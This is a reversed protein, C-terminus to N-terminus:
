RVTDASALQGIWIDVLKLEEVPPDPPMETFGVASLVARVALAVRMDHFCQWDAESDWVGIHRLGGDSHFVLHAILGIPQDDGIRAKVQRYMHEDAPVDYRLAYTM